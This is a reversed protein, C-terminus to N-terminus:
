LMNYLFDQTRQQQPHLFVEQPVGQEVVFVQMRLPMVRARATDWDMIELCLEQESSM